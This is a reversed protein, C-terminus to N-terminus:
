QEIPAALPEPDTWCLLRDGRRGGPNMGAYGLDILVDHRRRVVFPDRCDLTPKLGNGAIYRSSV